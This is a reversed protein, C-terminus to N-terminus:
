NWGGSPIYVRINEQEFESRSEMPTVDKSMTLGQYVRKNCQVGTKSTTLLVM